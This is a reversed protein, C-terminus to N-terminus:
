IVYSRRPSSGIVGGASLKTLTVDDYGLLTKLIDENHEGLNPAPNPVERPDKELWFPMGKVWNDATDRLFVRNTELFGEAVMERGGLSKTVECRAPALARTVDQITRKSIWEGLAAALREGNEGKCEIVRTLDRLSRDDPAVVAVWAGDATRFVDQFRVLSDSNGQRPCAMGQSAAVYHEGLMFATLERQSVDLVCGKGTRERELLASGILSAAFLSVVQDAYNLERGTIIPGSDSDSYGALWAFGTTAELTTGYSVAQRDPGSDGQSSIAAVVLRPNTGLLVDSGLGLSDMAGRRFNEVLVDAGKVLDLFIQRGDQTKLDVCLGRKGRNTFRFHFAKNWWDDKMEQRSWLRFPDLYTPSEIKLVDAGLDALLTSASAGATIIGLDLVRLGALPGAHQASDNVQAARQHQERAITSTRSSWIVPLRPSLFREGAAGTRPLFFQRYTFQRDSLAEEPSWVPGFPLRHTHALVAIERRSLGEVWRAFIGHLAVRNQFREYRGQFEPRELEPDNIVEKIKEWDQDQYVLAVFGDACRFVKWDSNGDGRKVERGAQIATAPAKWNVWRAVDLCRVEAHGAEHFRARRLLEAMCALYVSLGAAYAVQKGPLRLPARDAEGIIHLLGSRALIGLETETGEAPTSSRVAVVIPGSSGGSATVEKLDTATKADAIVVDVRPMVRLLSAADWSSVRIKQTSHVLFLEYISRQNAGEFVHPVFAQFPDADNEVARHVAAGLDVM